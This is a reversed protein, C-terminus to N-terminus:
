EEKQAEAPPAVSATVNQQKGAIQFTEYHDDETEASMKAQSSEGLSKSQTNSLRM